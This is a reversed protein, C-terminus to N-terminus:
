FHSLGPITIEIPHRLWAASIYVLCGTHIVQAICYVPFAGHHQDPSRTKKRVLCVDQGNPSNVGNLGFPGVSSRCQIAMIDNNLIAPAQM